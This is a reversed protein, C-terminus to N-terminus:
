VFVYLGGWISQSRNTPMPLWSTMLPPAKGGGREKGARDLDLAIGHWLFGVMSGVLAQEPFLWGM